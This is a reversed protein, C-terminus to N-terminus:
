SSGQSPEDRGAVMARGTSSLLAVVIGASSSLFTGGLPACTPLAGRVFARHRPLKGVALPQKRRIRILRGRRGHCM